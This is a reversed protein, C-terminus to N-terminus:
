AASPRRKEDPARWILNARVEILHRRMASEARDPDHAVLADIIRQHEECAVQARAGPQVSAQLRYVRFQYFLEDCCAAILRENRSGRVIRVHFDELAQYYDATAEGDHNFCHLYQTLEAIEADTMATAALRCAMGELAERMTFLEDLGRASLGVVYAGLNPKREVLRRGELRMLAERLPGRSIGFKRALEAESIRAGPAIDGCVIAGVIKEFALNALSQAVIPADFVPELSM